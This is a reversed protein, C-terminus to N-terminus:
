WLSLTSGDDSRRSVDHDHHDHWDAPHLMSGYAHPAGAGDSGLVFPV